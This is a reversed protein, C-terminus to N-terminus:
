NIKDVCLYQQYLQYHADPFDKWEKNMVELAKDTNPEIGLYYEGLGAYISTLAHGAGM